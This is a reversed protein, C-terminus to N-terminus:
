WLKNATISMTDGAGLGCSINSIVYEGNIGSKNDKVKIVDNVDLSYIPVCTIVIKDTAQQHLYVEQKAREECLYTSYSHIESMYESLMTISKWYSTDNISIGGICNQICEYYYKKEDSITYVIDGVVYSKDANFLTSNKDTAESLETATCIFMWDDIKEDPANTNNAGNINICKYFRDNYKVCCRYPYSMINNLNSDYLVFDYISDIYSDDQVVYIRYMPSSDSYKENLKEVTYPSYPYKKDDVVIEAFPQYGDDQVGGYVVIKNKINSYLIDRKISVILNNWYKLSFDIAITNIVNDGDSKYSPKKDFVFYGDINYYAQYNYFLETIKNVLDWRTDGVASEIKYPIKLETNGIILNSEGGDYMIARVAEHAYPTATGEGVEIMTSYPLQGGIDGNYLSMKDLGNISISNESVTINLSPDQIAYTGNKFWYIEDTDFVKLGIYLKFKKNLWFVSSNDEPLYGKELKFTISCTRRVASESDINYQGGIASGSLENIIKDNTDIIEIKIFLQRSQSTQLKLEINENINAM